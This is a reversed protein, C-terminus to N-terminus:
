AALPQRAVPAEALFQRIARAGAAAGDHGAYAARLRRAAQAFGPGHLLRQVAQTLRPTDADRPSLALGAGHRVALDVNLEQEPHLPLGLLPVGSALATQVTGQGGMTVALSVHPMVRHNPLLGAVVVQPDENPGYDHITAGVIVRPGAARVRRVVQRLLAPTASSLVVLVTPARGDLWAAVAPPLPLDLHAFLPGTAVLRTGPRYHRGDAPRWDRIAQAPIGLVEPLETVLTLDGLM